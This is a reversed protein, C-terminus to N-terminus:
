PKTIQLPMKADQKVSCSTPTDPKPMGKQEAHALGAAGESFNTNGSVGQTWAEEAGLLLGEGGEVM